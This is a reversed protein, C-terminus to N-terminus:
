LPIENDKIESNDPQELRDLITKLYSTHNTLVIDIENLHNSIKRLAELLSSNVNQPANQPRAPPQTPKGQKQAKSLFFMIKRDTYSNGKYSKLEEKFAVAVEDGIQPNLEQFQTYAKTPSGDQKVSYFNYLGEKTKIIFKKANDFVKNEIGQIKITKHQM